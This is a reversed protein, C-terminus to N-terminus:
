PSTLLSIILALVLGVLVSVATFSAARSQPINLMIPAGVYFLYIGFLYGFVSLEGLRPIIYLGSAIWGPTVSYACLKVSGTVDGLGDFRSSLFSIVYGAIYISLLYFLYRRIMFSLGLGIPIHTIRNEFPVSYGVISQGIFLSIAPIAALYVLYQKYLDGVGAEEEKITLWTERPNVMVAKARDILANVDM